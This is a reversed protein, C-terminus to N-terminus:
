HLFVNFASIKKQTQSILETTFIQTPSNYKFSGFCEPIAEFDDLILRMITSQSDADCWVVSAAYFLENQLVTPHINSINRRLEANTNIAYLGDHVFM